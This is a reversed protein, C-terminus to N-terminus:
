RILTINNSFKVKKGDKTTGEMNWIYTGVECDRGKYTGDWGPEDGLVDTRYVLEGWRNYISFYDLEAINLYKLVHIFDNIGDGDPSFGTPIAWLTIINVNVKVTDYNLCGTQIDTIELQYDTTEYPAADLFYDDRETLMGYLPDPNIATWIPTGDGYGFLYAIEADRQITTDEGADVDPLQYVIVTQSVTDTFCDNSVLVQVVGTTDLSVLSSDITPTAFNPTPLWEYYFGGDAFLLTSDYRCHTSDGWISGQVPHQVNVEVSDNSSCDHTNTTTIYYWSTDTPYADTIQATADDFTSAPQSTWNFQIGNNTVAELTIPSGLCVYGPYSAPLVADITPNDYVIIQVSDTNPCGHTGVSDTALLNYWSTSTPMVTPTANNVDTLSVDTSSWEYYEHSIPNPNLTYSEGLCISDLVGADIVTLPLVEILVSDEDAYCYNQITLTYQTNVTPFFGPQNALPDTVFATPTWSYTSIVGQELIDPYITDGICGSDTPLAILELDPNLVFVRVTDTETCNNADTVAVIYDTNMTPSANPNDINPNDLSGDVPTWSYFVGGTAQLQVTSNFVVLDAVNLCVSTDEGAYAPPLSNVLIDIDDTNECGFIDTGIVTYNTNGVITMAFAEDDVVGNDWIYVGDVGAGTGFLVLSDELCLVNDADDSNAVVNPLALVEIAISATNECGNNDTGTVTYINTGVPAPVFVTGDPVSNDWAYINANAGTLIIDDGDCISDNIDNSLALVNPLTDVLVDVTATNVCGNADTGTVTYTVNGAAAPIFASGDTVGNDWVYTGGAGAGGGTFIVNDNLCIENDAEDVSATVIPLADVLVDVTATNDCGNVDTGTVTYTVNGVAVPTFAVGDTVGNNWVYTGGVGAGGGTFVVDDGICIENDVEDVSATINPLPNIVIQQTISDRCGQNSEVWLTVDFTGDATYTHSVNQTTTTGEDYDWEYTLGNGTSTNNFQATVDQCIPTTYNFNAVPMSHITIIEQAVRACGKFTRVLVEITYTGPSTYTHNPFEDTSTFGDGFDWEWETVYDYAAGATVISEPSIENIICATNAEIEINIDLQPFVYILYYGTDVCSEGDIDVEIVNTVIYVGTDAYTHQPEFATSTNGDGFDWFYTDAGTTPTNGFQYSTNEFQIDLDTCNKEIIPLTTIYDPLFSVDIDLDAIDDTENPVVPTNSAPVDCEVVTYQFDRIVTSLLVGARYESVCIGVTFTGVTNAQGIILGNNPDIAIPTGGGLPNTPSYPPQWVVTSHPPFLSADPFNGATMAPQATNLGQFPSCMSYTLDDGDPDTAGHQLIVDGLCLFVPPPNTFVPSSNQYVATPPIYATSLQGQNGPNNLNQVLSGNRCCRGYVLHYGLAANPLTVQFEYVGRDIRVNTPDELCPNDYEPPNPIDPFENTLNVVVQDIYNDNEDFIYIVAPDDFLANPNGNFDDRYITLIVDYTTGVGTYTYTMEGGVLHTAFSSLFSVTFLFFLIKKM